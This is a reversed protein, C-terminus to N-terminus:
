VTVFSDLLWRRLPPFTAALRQRHLPRDGPEALSAPLDIDRHLLPQVVEGFKAPHATALLIAPGASPNRSKYRKWALWGVATHPDLVQGTRRHVKRIALRIEDDDHSSAAVHRELEDLDEFLGLLRPLNSPDGVDMASALTAVSPRPGYVGSDLFDPFVDNANVAAVFGAAPVGMRWAMVGATLNGLNGSPVVFVPAPSGEPLQAAAWAYYVMQPLLRGVSISNASTLRLTRSLEPDAFAQKALRQCDDFSGEVALAHVNGGLTALQREQLPSVRGEPYLVVVRTGPVLHFARAVAGGTDGSTAVLVTIPSETVRPLVRALFRAGVDKFAATPGHFLELLHVGESIEVLPMPFSLAHDLVERLEGADLGPEVYPALMETALYPPGQGALGETWDAPLTPVSEPVYLGGDPAPGGSVAEGFGVAPADGGTSVYRM